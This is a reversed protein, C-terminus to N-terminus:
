SIHEFCSAVNCAGCGDGSVGIEAVIVVIGFLRYDDFL